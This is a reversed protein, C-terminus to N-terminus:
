KAGQAGLMYDLTLHALTRVGVVMSSEDIHFKPSHNPIFQDGAARAGLIVFLGPIKEQYFAFDDAFPLLGIEILRDEGAVRRLTPLMRASLRPDNYISPVYMEPVLKAEATAGSGLAINAATRRIRDIMDQRLDRDYWDLAVSMRLSDALANFHGGHIDMVSLVAPSKTLDVQRSVITQLGLVIQSGVVIADVGDWPTDLNAQRGHVTIDIEDSGAQQAGARYGIKGTELQTLLHAGFIVEPRPDGSLVGADILQLAGDREGPPPGEEGPQFILVITGPLQDKMLMFIEAVGLLMAMHADHGCAHMVGVTEGSPSTARVTSKFPLDVEETYPLADLEARLAVTPGPKAGHLVAVVGTKGIPTRVELGLARARAAIYASTEFERNSLEPHQHIYRRDKVVSEISRSALAHLRAHLPNRVAVAHFAATSQPLGSGGKPDQATQGHAVAVAALTSHMMVRVITKVTHTRQPQRALRDQPAVSAIKSLREIIQSARRM